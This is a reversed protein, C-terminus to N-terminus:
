SERGTVGNLWQVFDFTDYYKKGFLNKYMGLVGIKKENEFGPIKVFSPYQESDFDNKVFIVKNSFPLNQARSYNEKDEEYGMFTFILFINNYDVRCAREKWKKKATEFSGYHIFHLEIM